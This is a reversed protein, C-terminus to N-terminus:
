YSSSCKAIVSDVFEKATAKGVETEKMNKTLQFFNKMSIRSLVEETYCECFRTSNVKLKCGDKIGQIGDETWTKEPDCVYFEITKALINNVYIEIEYKGLRDSADFTFTQYMNKKYKVPNSKITKGQVEPIHLICYISFEIDEECQIDFGWFFDKKLSLPIVKTENTVFAGTYKEESFSFPNKIKKMIGFRVKYKDVVQATSVQYPILIFIAILFIYKM